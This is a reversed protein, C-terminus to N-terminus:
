GSTTPSVRKIWFSGGSLELAAPFAARTADAFKHLAYRSGFLVEIHSNEMLYAQLLYQETWFVLRETLLERPYDFPLYIDHFHVLVGSRLRSLVEGFLFQVDGGTRIVHSSDIFLIDNPGLSEFMKVDLSELKRNVLTISPGSLEVITQYPDVGTIHGHGNVGIAELALLTSNGVGIEIIQEPKHARIMGYYILPDIGRFSHNDLAFRSADSRSEGLARYEERLGPFVDRLYRLHNGPSFDIGPCESPDPDDVSLSALDPISSYFGLSQATYGAKQLRRFNESDMLAGPRLLLSAGRALVRHLDRKLGTVLDDGNFGSMSTM